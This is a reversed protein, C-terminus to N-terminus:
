RRRAKRRHTARQPLTPRMRVGGTPTHQSSVGPPYTINVINHIDAPTFWWHAVLSGRVMNEVNQRRIINVNRVAWPAWQTATLTDVEIVCEARDCPGDPGPPLVPIGAGARSIDPDDVLWVIPGVEPFLMKHPFAIIKGAHEIRRAHHRCTLHYLIM